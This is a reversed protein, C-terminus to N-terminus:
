TKKSAEIIEAATMPRADPMDSLRALLDELAKIRYPQGVVWPSLSINLVRSGYSDAETRLVDAAYGLQKAWQAVTQNQQYIIYTDAMDYTLPMATLGNNFAYPMDDNAWDAIWDFGAAAVLDPTNATESIAPSRWGITKGTWPALTDRTKEILEREHGIEMPTAHIDGMSWGGAAFEAGANALDDMLVPMREAAEGQVFVTPSVGYRKMVELLRYIGVRNGYDRTTYSWIDPYARWTGGVPRFPKNNDMDLPFFDVGITVWLALKAGLDVKPAQRLYRLPYLAHDMGPSRHPYHFYDEGLAM